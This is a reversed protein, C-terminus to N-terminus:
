QRGADANHSFCPFNVFGSEQARSRSIGSKTNAVVEHDAANSTHARPRHTEESTLNSMDSRSHSSISVSANSSSGQIITGQGNPCYVSGVFEEFTTQHKFKEIISDLSKAREEYYTQYHSMM